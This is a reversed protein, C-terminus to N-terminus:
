GHSEQKDSDTEPDIDIDRWAGLVRHKGGQEPDSRAIGDRHELRVFHDVLKGIAPNEYSSAIPIEDLIEHDHLQIIM